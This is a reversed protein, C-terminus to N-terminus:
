DWESMAFSFYLFIIISIFLFSAANMRHPAIAGCWSFLMFHKIKYNGPLENVTNHIIESPLTDIIVM